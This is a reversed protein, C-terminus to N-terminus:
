SKAEKERLAAAYRRMAYLAQKVSIAATSGYLRNNVLAEHTRTGATVCEALIGRALAFEDTEIDAKYAAHHLLRSVAQEIPLGDRYLDRLSIYNVGHHRAFDALCVLSGDLNVLVTCSKNRSQQADTAWRCNDPTYHGDNDIRDISLDDRYGNAMAWEYFPDYKHWEPCVTIGKEVYPKRQGNRAVPSCRTRMGSWIRYLRVSPGHPNQPAPKGM